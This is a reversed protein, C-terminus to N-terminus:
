ADAKEKELEARAEEIVQLKIYNACSVEAVIDRIWVFREKKM